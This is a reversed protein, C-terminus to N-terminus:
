AWDPVSASFDLPAGNPSMAHVAILVDVHRDLALNRHDLQVPGFADVGEVLRHQELDVGREIGELAIGFYPDDHDVARSTAEGGAEVELLLHQTAGLASREPAFDEIEIKRRRQAEPVTWLWRHRCNM